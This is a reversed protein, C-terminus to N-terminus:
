RLSGSYATDTFALKGQLDAFEGSGNVAVSNIDLDFPFFFDCDFNSSFQDTWALTGSGAGAISGTFTETGHGTERNTECNILATFDAVATGTLDGSYESVLGRTDCRFLFFSSGVPTCTTDGLNSVTYTGSVDIARGASAQSV